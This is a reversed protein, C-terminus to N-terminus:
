ISLYKEIVKSWKWKERNDVLEAKVPNMVVYNIIRNLEEYNRVIHDYSEKQWFAGSRNLNKNAERATFAKLNQLIKTVIYSSTSSRGDVPLKRPTASRAVYKKV